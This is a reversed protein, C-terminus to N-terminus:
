AIGLSSKTEANNDGVKQGHRLFRRENDVLPKVKDFDHYTAQVHTAGSSIANKVRHYGDLLFVDGNPLRTVSVPNTNEKGDGISKEANAVGDESRLIKSIEIMKDSEVLVQMYLKRFNM